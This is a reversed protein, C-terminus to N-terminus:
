LILKNRCKMAYCHNKKIHAECFNAFDTYECVDSLNNIGSSVQKRLKGRRESGDVSSRGAKYRATVNQM